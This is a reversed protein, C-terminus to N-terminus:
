GVVPMSEAFANEALQAIASMAGADTAGAATNRIRALAHMTNTLRRSVKDFQKRSVVQPRPGGDLAGNLLDCRLIADDESIANFVCVPKENAPHAIVDFVYSGDTLTKREVCFVGSGYYHDPYDASYIPNRLAPM